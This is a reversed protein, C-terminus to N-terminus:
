GAAALLLRLTRRLAELDAGCLAGTLQREVKVVLPRLRRRESLGLATLTVNNRRADLPDRQRQILGRREMRSVLDAVTSRDLDIQDCLERQSMEGLRNLIALIAYQVSSTEASVIRGWAAVHAQQARRILHGTYRQPEPEAAETGAIGTAGAHRSM